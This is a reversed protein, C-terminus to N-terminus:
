SYMRNCLAFCIIYFILNAHSELIIKLTKDALKIWPFPTPSCKRITTAFQIYMAMVPPRRPCPKSELIKISVSNKRVANEMFKGMFDRDELFLEYFYEFNIKVTNYNYKSTSDPKKGRGKHYLAVRTSIAQVKQMRCPFICDLKKWYMFLEPLMCPFIKHFKWATQLISLACGHM